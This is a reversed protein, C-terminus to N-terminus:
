FRLATAMVSVKKPSCTRFESNTSSDAAAKVMKLHSQLLCQPPTISTRQLSTGATRIYSRSSLQSSRHTSIEKTGLIRRALHIKDDEQYPNLWSLSSWREKNDIGAECCTMKHPLKLRGPLSISESDSMIAQHIRINVWSTYCGVCLTVMRSRSSVLEESM